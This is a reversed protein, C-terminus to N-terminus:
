SPIKRQDLESEEYVSSIERTSTFVFKLELVVRVIAFKESTNDFNTTPSSNWGGATKLYFALVGM